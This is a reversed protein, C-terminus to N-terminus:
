EKLFKLYFDSFVTGSNKSMLGVKGEVPKPLEYEFMKKNDMKVLLREGMINLELRYPQFPNLSLHKEALHMFRQGDVMQYLEVMDQYKEFDCIRVLYFNYPDKYNFVIGMYHNNGLREKWYTTVGFVGESWEAERLILLGHGDIFKNGTKKRSEVGKESTKWDGSIVQFKEMDTYRLTDSILFPKELPEMPEPESVKPSHSCNWMFVTILVIILLNKNM